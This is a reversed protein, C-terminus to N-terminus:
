GNIHEGSPSAPYSIMGSKVAFSKKKSIYRKVGKGLGNNTFLQGLSICPNHTDKIHNEM